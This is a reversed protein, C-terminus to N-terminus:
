SPEWRWGDNDECTIAEGDGAVGSMGHDSDRCYEGPEYCGGSDSLPSCESSGSNGGSSTSPGSTTSASPAASPCRAPSINARAIRWTRAQRTLQYTGSWTRCGYQADTTTLSHVDVTASSPSASALNGRFSVSRIQAQQEQSAFDAATQTVSGLVLYHYAAEYKHAGIDHWYLQITRLPGPRAPTSARAPAGQISSSTPESSSSTAPATDSSSTSGSPGSSSCGCLLVAAVAIMAWRIAGFRISIRM